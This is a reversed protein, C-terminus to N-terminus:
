SFCQVLDHQCVCPCCTSMWVYRSWPIYSLQNSCQVMVGSVCTWNGSAALFKRGLTLKWHLSEKLTLAGGHAIAQMLMQTCSLSGKTWTLTWHIIAVCVYGACVVLSLFLGTSSQPQELVILESNCCLHIKARYITMMMLMMLFSVCVSLSLVSVCVYPCWVSVLMHVTDPQCVYLSLATMYTYHVFSWWTLSIDMKVQWWSIWQKLQLMQCIASDSVSGTHHLTMLESIRFKSVRRVLRYCCSLVDEIWCQIICHWWNQSGVIPYGGWWGTVIPCSM